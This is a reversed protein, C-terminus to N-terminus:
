LLRELQAKWAKYEDLRQEERERYANYSVYTKNEGPSNVKTILGYGKKTLIYGNYRTKTLLGKRLLNNISKHLTVRESDTMKGKSERNILERLESRQVTGLEFTRTLIWKQLKSLREKAM